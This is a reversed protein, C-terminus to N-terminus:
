GLGFKKNVRKVQFVCNPDGKAKCKIEKAEFAHVKNDFLCDMFGGAMGTWWYCIPRDTVGYKKIWPGVYYSDEVTFTLEQRADNLEFDTIKGCGVCNTVAILGVLRDTMNDILPEIMKAWEKSAMVGEYTAMACWQSADILVQEALNIAKKGLTEIFNMERGILFDVSNCALIVDFRKIMGDQDGVLGQSLVAKQIAQADVAM